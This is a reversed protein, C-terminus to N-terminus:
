HSIWFFVGLAILPFRMIDDDRTTQVEVEQGWVEIRVGLAMKARRRPEWCFGLCGVCLWEARAGDQQWRLARCHRGYIIMCVCATRLALTHDKITRARWSLTRDSPIMWKGRDESWWIAQFNRLLCNRIILIETFDAQRGIFITTFNRFLM